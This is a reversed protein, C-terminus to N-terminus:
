QKKYRPFMLWPQNSDPINHLMRYNYVDSETLDDPYCHIKQNQDAKYYESNDGCPVEQASGQGGSQTIKTYPCACDGQFASIESEIILRKVENDSLYHRDTATVSAPKDSSNRNSEKEESLAQALCIAPFFLIFATSIKM